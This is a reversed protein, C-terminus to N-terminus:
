PRLVSAFVLALTATHCNGRLAGLSTAAMAAAGSYYALDAPESQSGAEIEPVHAPDSLMIPEISGNMSKKARM